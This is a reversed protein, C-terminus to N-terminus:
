AALAPPPAPPKKGIAAPDIAKMAKDLVVNEELIITYDPLDRNVNGRGKQLEATFAQTNRSDYVEIVAVSEGDAKLQNNIGKGTGVSNDLHGLGAVGLIRDGKDVKGRLHLWLDTDDLREKILGSQFDAIIKEIKGREEAPMKELYQRAFEEGSLKSKEKRHARMIALQFQQLEPPPTSSVMIQWSVDAFHAKMGAAHANDIAQILNSEFQKMADGALWPTAFREHPNEFVRRRFEERTIEKAAYDDLHHQLQEPFELAFHKVGKKAAADFIAPNQALMEYTKLFNGNIHPEGFYIHHSTELISTIMGGLFPRETTNPIHESYRAAINFKKLLAGENLKKSRNNLYVLTAHNGSVTM